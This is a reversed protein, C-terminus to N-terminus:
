TGASTNWSRRKRRYAPAKAQVVSAVEQETHTGHKSAEATTIRRKKCYNEVSTKSIHLADAVQGNTLGIAKMNRIDSDYPECESTNGKGEAIKLGYRRATQYVLMVHCGVQREIEKATNGDNILQIVQATKSEM